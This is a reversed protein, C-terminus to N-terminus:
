YVAVKIGFFGAILDERERNERFQRFLLLGIYRLL